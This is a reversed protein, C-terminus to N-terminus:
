LLRYTDGKRSGSYLLTHRRFYVNIAIILTIVTILTILSRVENSYPITLSVLVENASLQTHFSTTMTVERSSGLSTNVKLIFSITKNSKSAFNLITGAAILIPIFDSSPHGKIINGGITQLPSLSPFLSTLSHYTYYYCHVYQLM